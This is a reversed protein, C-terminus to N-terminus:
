PDQPINIQDPVMRFEDQYVILMQVARICLFPQDDSPNKSKGYLINPTMVTALNPIDMKNTDKHVAVDRLFQLLVQLLDLNPKPLLCMALHLARKRTEHDEFNQSAVFLFHLKFTLLPDPLDRLFKKLLAAVQIVNDEDLRDLAPNADFQEATEKLRRINGNKRFVGESSLDMAYLASLCLEVVRPIRVSYNGQLTTSQAGQTSVLTALPVGFTGKVEQKRGLPGVGVGPAKKPMFRSWVSTKSDSEMALEPLKRKLLGELLAVAEKKIAVKALASQESLVRSSDVIYQNERISPNQVPPLRQFEQQIQPDNHQEDESLLTSEDPPTVPAQTNRVLSQNSQSAARDSLGTESTPPEVPLVFPAQAHLLSYLRGLSCHLLFSFQQLQTLRKMGVTGSGKVQSAHEQCFLFGTSDEVVTTINEDGLYKSCVSCTFCALTREAHWCFSDNTPKYCADEVSKHCKTCIDTRNNGSTMMAAFTEVMSLSSDQTSKELNTLLNLFDLISTESGYQREMRLAGNLALRLLSKLTTALSAMLNIMDAKLEEKNAESGDANSLISFFYVIRKALQRPEKRNVLLGREDDVNARAGANVLDIDIKELGNFVVDVYEIFRHGDLCVEAYSRSTYHSMMDGICNATSEEFTSLVSIIKDVKSLTVTQRNVEATTTRISPSRLHKIHSSSPTYSLRQQQDLNTEPSSSSIVIGEGDPNTEDLTTDGHQFNPKVNWLKYIMYCQPHWQYVVGEKKMEVFKKLVATQCGGCKSAFLVSYHFQCYVKGEREYYSDHQRFVKTCVNCGFHELHFKKGIANIHPGRLALGCKDCLLGHLAFYHKECYLKPPNARTPDDASWLPFFKDAVPVGCDTCKFCDFHYLLNQARVSQGGVPLSCSACTRVVATAGVQESSPTAAESATAEPM